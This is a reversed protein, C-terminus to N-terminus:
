FIYRLLSANFSSGYHLALVVSAFNVNKWFSRKRKYLTIYMHLEFKKNACIIIRESDHMCYKIEGNAWYQETCCDKPFVLAEQALISYDDTVRKDRPFGSSYVVRERLATTPTLSYLAKTVSYRPVIPSHDLIVYLRINAFLIDLFLM